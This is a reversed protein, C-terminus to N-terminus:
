GLHMSDVNAVSAGLPTLDFSLRETLAPGNSDIGWTSKFVDVGGVSFVFDVGAVGANSQITRLSAQGGAFFEGTPSELRVGLPAEPGGDDSLLPQVLGGPATPFRCLFRLRGAEVVAGWGGALFAVTTPNPPDIGLVTGNGLYDTMGTGNLVTFKIESP